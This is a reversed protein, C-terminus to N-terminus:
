KIVEAPEVDDIAARDDPERSPETAFWADLIEMAVPISTARMSLALVNADNWKRAGAATQADGCLAARVGPVKNAAISVGTATWCMVVGTDALGSAVAQGVLRGVQPWPRPGGDIAGFPTVDHGRERLADQVADTLASRDDAGLAVRM